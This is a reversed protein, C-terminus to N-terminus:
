PDGCIDEKRNAMPIIVSATTIPVPPGETAPATGNSWPAGGVAVGFGVGDAVGEGVGVTVGVGVAVAGPVTLGIM